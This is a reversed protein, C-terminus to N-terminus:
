PLIRNFVVFFVLFHYIFIVKLKIWQLFKLRKFYLNVVNLNLVKGTWVTIYVLM